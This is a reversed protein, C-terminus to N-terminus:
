TSYIGGGGRFVLPASPHQEVYGVVDCLKPPTNKFCSPYIKKFFFELPSCKFPFCFTRNCLRKEKGM